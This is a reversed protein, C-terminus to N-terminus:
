ADRAASTRGQPSAMSCCCPRSCTGCSCRVRWPTAASITLAAAHQDVAQSTETIGAVLNSHHDWGGADVQVFRVGREVPGRACLPKAALNGRGYAELIAKPEKAIDFADTAATQMQFAPECSEFRAEAKEDRQVSKM